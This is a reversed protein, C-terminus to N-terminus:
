DRKKFDKIVKERNIVEVRDLLAAPGGYIFIFILFVNELKMCAREEVLIIGDVVLLDATPQPAEKVVTRSTPPEEVCPKWTVRLPNEKNWNPLLTFIM